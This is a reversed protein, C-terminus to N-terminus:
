VQRLTVALEDLRAAGRCEWGGFRGRRAECHRKTFATWSGLLGPRVADVQVRVRARARARVCVCVCVCVIYVSVTWM